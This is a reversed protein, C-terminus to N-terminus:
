RSILDYFKTRRGKFLPMECEGTIVHKNRAGVVDLEAYIIEEKNPHAEALTRGSYDVIKSRGIFRFGREVGVRNVAVYNIRNECARTNIMFQPVVESGEPWNTSLVVIEAGQLAMIRASEPFRADFCINIGIKGVDTEYIKFPQDGPTAFRDVGTYSIHIKRYKGVLGKPSAFALANYCCRGDRELLGIVVYIGLEKCMSVVADTSSGPITEAVSLAEDLSKFCYGTLSCEPFVLLQGGEKAAIQMYELCRGLNEEKELIKPEMQIGAVNVEGNVM